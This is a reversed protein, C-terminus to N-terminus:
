KKLTYDKGKKEIRGQKVLHELFPQLQDKHIGIGKQLAAPEQPGQKLGLLVANNILGNLAENLAKNKQITNRYDLSIEHLKALLDNVWATLESAPFGLKSPEMIEISAPSFNIALWVLTKLEDVLMEVEAFTSFFGDDADIADAVDEELFVIRTDKRINDLYTALAQEVHEKPKGVVEFTVMARLAGDAIRENIQRKSLKEPQSKEEKKAQKAM